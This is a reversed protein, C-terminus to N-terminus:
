VKFCPFSRFFFVTHCIISITVKSDLHLPTALNQFSFRCITITLSTASENTRLNKCCSLLKFPSAKFIHLTSIVHCQLPAQHKNMMECPICGDFKCCSVPSNTLM